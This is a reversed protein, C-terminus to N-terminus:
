WSLLISSFQGGWSLGGRKYPCKKMDSATYKNWKIKNVPKSRCKFYQTIYTVFILPVLHGLIYLIFRMTYIDQYRCILYFKM